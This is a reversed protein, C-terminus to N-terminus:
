QSTVSGHPHGEDILTYIYEYSPLVIPLYHSSKSTPSLHPVHTLLFTYSLARTLGRGRSRGGELHGHPLLLKAGRLGEVMIKQRVTASVLFNIM